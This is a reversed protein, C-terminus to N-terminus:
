IAISHSQSTINSTDDNTASSTTTAIVTTVISVVQKDPQLMVNFERPTGTKAEASPLDDPSHQGTTSTRPKTGM